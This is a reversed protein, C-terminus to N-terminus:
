TKERQLDSPAVITHHGLYFKKKPYTHPPHGLMIPQGQANLVPERDSSRRWDFSITVPDNIIEDMVVRRLYIVTQLRLDLGNLNEIAVYGNVDKSCRIADDQTLGADLHGLMNARSILYYASSDACNNSNHNGDNDLAIVQDPNWGLASFKAPVSGGHLMKFKGYGEYNSLLTLQILGRGYYPAYTALEGRLEKVYRLNGTEPIVHSFFHLIRLRNAAIGYRRTAFNFPSVWETARAIADDWEFAEPKFQTHVLRLLKRPFCQAFENTSLWGCKRFQRIFETAPFHWVDSSAPLGKADEWFALKTAHNILATFDTESLPTKWADSSQKLWSYRVDLDTKAWETSFKCIAKAMRAKVATAQLALALDAHTLAPSDTSAGSASSGQAPQATSANGAGAGQSQAADTLWKKITPSDCLSTTLTDDQIFSWGAWDPFDADSYAQIGESVSLNIWGAGDPTKVKRWHNFEANAPMQQEILRGFRRMEFIVSPSSVAPPGGIQALSGDTYKAKLDTATQYLSYEGDKDIQSGVASWTGDAQQQYTTMTCDGAYHMQIVLASSTTASATQQQVSHAHGLPPNEDDDRFPHPENAFLKKGSPVSFWIDGYVADTRAPTNGLPGPARGVMKQLNATDCVQEFHIQGPQGYVMGPAGLVAKRYVKQDKALQPNPNLHMYISFWTVKANDGDGIETDHKLVVCGDDTRVNAYQLPDTSPDDAPKTNPRVYVIKGDAIARVPEYQTPDSAQKPAMLHAGGHWSLNFSVPFAGNGPACELMTATCVDGPPPVADGAPASQTEQGLPDPVANQGNQAPQAPQPQPAPPILFPPSIIM